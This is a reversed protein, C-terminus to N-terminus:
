RCVYLGKQCTRGAARGATTRMPPLARCHSAICLVGQIRGVAHGGAAGAWLWGLWGALKCGFLADCGGGLLAWGVQMMADRRELLERKWERRDWQWKGLFAALGGPVLLFMGSWLSRGSGAPHRLCLLWM